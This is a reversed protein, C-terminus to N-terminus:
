PQFTIRRRRTWLSLVVGATLLLAGAGCILLIPTGTVPLWGKNGQTASNSPSATPSNIPTNAGGFWTANQNNDATLTSQSARVTEPLTPWKNAFTSQDISQRPANSFDVGGVVISFRVEKGNVQRTLTYNYEGNKYSKLYDQYVGDATWKTRAPWRSVDGSNIISSYANVKSQAKQRVWSAIVRALYVRRLDEFEVATNVVETIKPLVISEFAQQNHDTVTQSQSPCSVGAPATALSIPASKVQLPADLVYLKTGDERVTATQPVIWNRFTV